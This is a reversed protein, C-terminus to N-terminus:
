VQWPKVDEGYVLTFLRREGQDVRRSMRAATAFDKDRIALAYQKRMARVFNRASGEESIM